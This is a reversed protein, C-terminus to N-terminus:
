APPTSQGLQLRSWMTRDQAGRVLDMPEDVHRLAWEPPSSPPSTPADVSGVRHGARGRLTGLAEEGPTHETRVAGQSSTDATGEQSHGEPSHELQRDGGGGSLAVQWVLQSPPCTRQRPEQMRTKSLSQPSTSAHQEHMTAEDGRCAIAGERHQEWGGGRTRPDYRHCTLGACQPHPCGVSAPV